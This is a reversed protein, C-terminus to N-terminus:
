ILIEVPNSGLWLHFFKLNADDVLQELIWPIKAWRQIPGTNRLTPSCFLALHIVLHSPLFGLLNLPNLVVGFGTIEPGFDWIIEELYTILKSGTAIVSMSSLNQYQLQNLFVHSIVCELLMWLCCIREKTHLHITM